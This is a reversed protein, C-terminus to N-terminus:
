TTLLFILEKMESETTGEPQELKPTNINFIELYIQNLMDNILEQAEIDTHRKNAQLIKKAQDIADFIVKRAEARVEQNTKVGDNSKVNM